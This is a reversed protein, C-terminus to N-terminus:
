RERRFIPFERLLLALEKKSLTEPEFEVMVMTNHLLAHDKLTTLLRFVRDFSNEIILYELGDIFVFKEGEGKMLQVTIHALYELNRPNIANRVNEVKSLWIVPAECGLARWYDENKRSIILSQRGKSFRCVLQSNTEDAKLLLLGPTISIEARNNPPLPKFEIEVKGRRIRFLVLIVILAGVFEGAISLFYLATTTIGASLSLESLIDIFIALLAIMILHRETKHTEKTSLYFMYLTVFIALVLLFHGAYWFGQAIEHM